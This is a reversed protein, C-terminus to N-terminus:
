TGVNWRSASPASLRQFWAFHYNANTLNRTAIGETAALLLCNLLVGPDVDPYQALLQYRSTDLYVRLLDIEADVIGTGAAGARALTHVMRPLGDRWHTAESLLWGLDDIAALERPQSSTDTVDYDVAWGLPDSPAYTVSLTTPGLMAAANGARRDPELLRVEAPLTIGPPIWGHALDTVLLATGDQRKGVAWRLGPEQRAVFKLLRELDERDSRPDVLPASHRTTVVDDVALDVPAGAPPQRPPQDPPVDPPAAAFTRATLQDLPAEAITAIEQLVTAIEELVATDDPDPPYIPALANPGAEELEGANLEATELEGTELKGADLEATEPEAMAPETAPTPEKAAEIPDPRREPQEVVAPQRPDEGSHEPRPQAAASRDTAGNVVTEPQPAVKLRRTNDTDQFGNVRRHEPPFQPRMKRVHRVTSEVRRVAFARAADIVRAEETQRIPDALGARRIKALEENASNVIRQLDARLYKVLPATEATVTSLEAPWLGGTVWPTCDVPSSFAPIKLSERSARRLRQRATNRGFIAV